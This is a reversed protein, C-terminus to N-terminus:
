KNTLDQKGTSLHIASADGREVENLPVYLNETRFPGKDVVLIQDTVNHMSLTGVLEGAADYVPTGMMFPQDGATGQNDNM